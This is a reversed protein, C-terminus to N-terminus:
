QKKGEKLGDIIGRKYAELLLEDSYELDDDDYYDADADVNSNNNYNWLYMVFNEIIAAATLIALIVIAKDLVTLSSTVVYYGGIMCGISLALRLPKNFVLDVFNVLVKWAIFIMLAGIALILIELM